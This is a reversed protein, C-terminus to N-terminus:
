DGSRAVLRCELVIHYGQGATDPTTRTFEANLADDSDLIQSGRWITTGGPAVNLGTVELDQAAVLNATTGASVDRFEIDLTVPDTGDIALVNAGVSISLLEVSISFGCPVLLLGVDTGSPAAALIPDPIPVNVLFIDGVGKGAM